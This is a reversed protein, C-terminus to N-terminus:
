SSDIATDGLRRSKRAKSNSPPDNQGGGVMAFTASVAVRTRTLIFLLKLSYMHLIICWIHLNAVNCAECCSDNRNGTDLM